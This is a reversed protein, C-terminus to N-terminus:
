IDRVELIGRRSIKGWSYIDPSLEVSYQIVDFGSIVCVLIFELRIKEVGKIKRVVAV